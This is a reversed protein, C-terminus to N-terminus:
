ARGGAIDLLVLNAHKGLYTTRSVQSPLAALAYLRARQLGHLGPRACEPGSGAVAFVSRNAAFATVIFLVAPACRRGPSAEVPM